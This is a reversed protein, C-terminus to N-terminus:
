GVGRLDSWTDTLTEPPAPPPKRMGRPVAWAELEDKLAAGQERMTLDRKEKEERDRDAVAKTIWPLFTGHLYAWHPGFIV